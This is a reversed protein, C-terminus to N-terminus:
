LACMELFVKMFINRAANLDRHCSFGCKSCNFVRDSLEIDNLTGCCGCTKTTYEETCIIVKINPYQKAKNLLRSRFQFHRLNMLSKNLGHKNSGKVMDHTNFEPLIITNYNKLLFGISKLHLDNILNSKQNELRMRRWRSNKKNKVISIKKDILKIAEKPANITFTETHTPSYGNVFDSSGPDMAICADNYKQFCEPEYPVSIYWNQYDRIIKIDGHPKEFISITKQIQRQKRANLKLTREKTICNMTTKVTQLSGLSYSPYVKFSGDQGLKVASKEIEMSDRHWKSLKKFGIDFNKINGQRLNTTASKINNYLQKVSALRIHKPTL